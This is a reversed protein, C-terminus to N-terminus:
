RKRQVSTLSTNIIAFSHAATLYHTSGFDEILNYYGCHIHASESIANEPKELEWPLKGQGPACTCVHTWAHARVCM